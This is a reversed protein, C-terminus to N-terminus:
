LDFCSHIRRLAQLEKRQYEHSAGKRLPVSRLVAGPGATDSLFDAVMMGSFLTDRSSVPRKMRFEESFSLDKGMFHLLHKCKTKGIQM